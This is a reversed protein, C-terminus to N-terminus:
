QGLNQAYAYLADYVQFQRALREQDPTGMSAFGPASSRLGIGEAAVHEQGKVDPARVILALKGLAPGRTQFRRHNSGLKL